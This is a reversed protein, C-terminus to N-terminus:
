RFNSRYPARCEHQLLGCMSWALASERDRPDPGKSKEEDSTNAVEFRERYGSRVRGMPLDLVWRAPNTDHDRSQLQM